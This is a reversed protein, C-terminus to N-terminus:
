IGLWPQLFRMLRSTFALRGDVAALCICDEGPEAIPEHEVDEDHDAIDGAAFRGFRDTYAGTMILTIEQGRHSHEPMGTGAGVKILMLRSQAGPSLPLDAIWAKPGRRKWKVDDFGGRLYPQLPAPIASKTAPKTPATIMDAPDLRGLLDDISRESVEAPRADNLVAGGVADLRALRDACDPCMALHTALVVNFAEDLTGASYAILTADDPHHSITM